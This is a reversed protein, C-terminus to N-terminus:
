GGTIKGAKIKLFLNCYIHEYGNLIKLVEVQDGRLIQTERTKDWM